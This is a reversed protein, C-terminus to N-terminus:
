KAPKFSIYGQKDLFQTGKSKRPNSNELHEFITHGLRTSQKVQKRSKINGYM